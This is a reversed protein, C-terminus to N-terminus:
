KKLQITFEYLPYDHYLNVKNTIGKSFNFMEEPSYHYNKEIEFDVYKSLFNVSLVDKSIKFLRKMSDKTYEMINNTNFSFTGSSVIIDIPKKKSIDQVIDVEGVYFNINSKTFSSSAHSILKESIDIGIYEFKSTRMELFPILHGLGCGFDLITKDEIDIGRLLNYFRLEQDKKKNWGVSKLSPGSKDFRNNYFDSIINLDIKNTMLGFNKQM